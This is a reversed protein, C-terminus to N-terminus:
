LSVGFFFMRSGNNNSVNVHKCNSVNKCSELILSIELSLIKKIGTLTKFELPFQIEWYCSKISISYGVCSTNSVSVITSFLDINHVENAM